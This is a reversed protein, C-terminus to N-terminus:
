GEQNAQEQEDEPVVPDLVVVDRPDSPGSQKRYRSIRDALEALTRGNAALLDLESTSRDHLYKALVVANGTELVKLLDPQEEHFATAVDVTNQDRQEKRRLQENEIRTHQDKLVEREVHEARPLGICSMRAWADLEELRKVVQHAHGDLEQDSLERLVEFSTDM